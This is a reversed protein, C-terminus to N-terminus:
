CTEHPNPFADDDPEGPRDKLCAFDKEVLLRLAPGEGVNQEAEIGVDDGRAWTRAGEANAVLEIRSGVLTAALPPAAAAPATRLAYVLRTPGFSVSEEVLGKEIFVDVEGRTLRLRISNGRIRLKM